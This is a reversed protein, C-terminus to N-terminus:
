KVAQQQKGQRGQWGATARCGKCCCGLGVLQRSRGDAVALALLLVPPPAM